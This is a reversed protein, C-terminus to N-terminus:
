TLITPNNSSHLLTDLSLLLLLDIFHIHDLEFELSNFVIASQRMIGPINPSHLAPSV